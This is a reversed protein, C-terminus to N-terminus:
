VGERRAQRISQEMRRAASPDPEPGQKLALQKEADFAKMGDGLGQLEKDVDSKVPEQPRMDQQQIVWRWGELQTRVRRAQKRGQLEETKAALYELRETRGLNGVELDRVILTALNSVLRASMPEGTAKSYALTKEICRLRQRETLGPRLMFWEGMMELLDMRSRIGKWHKDKPLTGMSKFPLLNVADWFVSLNFNPDKIMSQVYPLWLHWSWKAPSERGRNYAMWAAVAVDRDRSAVLIDRLLTGGNEMNTAARLLTELHGMHQAACILTRLNQQRRQQNERLAAVLLMQWSSDSKHAPSRWHVSALNRRNQSKALLRARAVYFAEQDSWEITGQFYRAVHRFLSRGVPQMFGIALLLNYAIGRRHEDDRSQSLCSEVLNICYDRLGGMNFSKIDQAFQAHLKSNERLGLSPRSAEHMVLTQVLRFTLANTFPFSLRGVGKMALNQFLEFTARQPTMKFVEEFCQRWLRDGYADHSPTPRGAHIVNVIKSWQKARVHDLVEAPARQKFESDFPDLTLLLDDCSIMRVQVLSIVQELYPRCAQWLAHKDDVPEFHVLHDQLQVLAERAPSLTGAQSATAEEVIQSEEEASGELWRILQEIRGVKQKNRNEPAAPAEWNWEGLNFPLDITWPPPSAHSEPLIATMHRKGLRRRSEIPGPCSSLRRCPVSSAHHFREIARLLVANTIWIADPPSPNPRM